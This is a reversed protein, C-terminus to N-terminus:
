LQYFVTCKRKRFKLIADTVKWLLLVGIRSKRPAPFSYTGNLVLRCNPKKRCNAVGRIKEELRVWKYISYRHEHLAKIVLVLVITFSSSFFSFYVCVYM